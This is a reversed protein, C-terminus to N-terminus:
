KNLVFACLYLSVSLPKLSLLIIFQISLDSSYRQSIGLPMSGDYALLDFTDVMLKFFVRRHDM